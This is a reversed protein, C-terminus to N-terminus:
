DVFNLLNGSWDQKNGAQIIRKHWGTHHRSKMTSAFARSLLQELKGTPTVHVRPIGVPSSFKM